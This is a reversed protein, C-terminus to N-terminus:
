FSCCIAECNCPPFVSSTNLRSAGSNKGAIPRAAIPGYAIEDIAPPCAGATDWAIGPSKSMNECYSYCIGRVFSNPINLAGRSVIGIYVTNVDPFPIAGESTVDVVRNSSHRVWFSKMSPDEPSV